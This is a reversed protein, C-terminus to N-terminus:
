FPVYLLVYIYVGLIIELFWLMMTVQMPRKNKFCSKVDGRSLLFTGVLYIALVEVISGLVAHPITSLALSSSLGALPGAEMSLLSPVMVGFILVTHLVLATLMTVGHKMFSRKSKALSFGVLLVVFIAIQLLLNVDSLFFAHPNFLGM